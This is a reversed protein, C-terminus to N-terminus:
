RNTCVYINLVTVNKVANQFININRDYFFIIDRLFQDHLWIFYQIEKWSLSMLYDAYSLESIYNIMRKSARIIKARICSLSTFLSFFSYGFLGKWKVKRRIARHVHRYLSTCSTERTQWGAFLYVFLFESRVQLAMQWTQISKDSERRAFIRM